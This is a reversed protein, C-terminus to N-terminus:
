SVKGVQGSLSGTTREGRARERLVGAHGGAEGWTLTVGARDVNVMTM